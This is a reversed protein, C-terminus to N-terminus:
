QVCELILEICKEIGLKSSDLCLNYNKVDGWERDTIYKYHAARKKDRKKVHVEAEADPVRHEEIVRKVRDEPNGYIFVNLCDTRERLIYEACRGVIVCGGKDAVERIFETQYANIQERLPMTDRQGSDWANYVGMAINFIKSSTSYEGENEIVDEALGSRSSVEELIKKDYLPINLKEALAQGITHGGSGCQRSITIIKYGM